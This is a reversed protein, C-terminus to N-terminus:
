GRAGTCTHSTSVPSATASSPSNWSEPCQGNEQDTAIALRTGDPSFELDPVQWSLTEFRRIEEGDLADVIVVSDGVPGRALMTGDPSYAVASLVDVGKLTLWESSGSLGLDMLRVTQESVSALLLGSGSTALDLIVDENGRLAYVGEAWGESLESVHVWGGDDSAAVYKGDSTVAIATVYSGSDAIPHETGAEWDWISVARGIEGGALALASRGPIFAVDAPDSIDSFLAQLLEGTELNWIRVADPSSAAVLAGDPSVDMGLLTSGPRIPADIEILQEGTTTDWARITGDWGRSVLVSEDPTFRVAQVGDLAWSTEGPTDHGRGVVTVLSTEPELLTPDAGLRHVYPSGVIEFVVHWPEDESGAGTVVVDDIQSLNELAAEIRDASAAVAIPATEEGGFELAFTGGNADTWITQQDNSTILEAGTSVSWIAVTGDTRGTAVLHGDASIGVGYETLDDALLDGAIPLTQIREGTATDVVSVPGTYEHTVLRDGAENLDVRGWGPVTLRVRSAVVAQHLAEQAEKLPGQGVDIRVAELALLIALEADEDLILKAKAALEQARAIAANTAAHEANTAAERANSRALTAQKQAEESAADARATEEIAEQEKSQAVETADEARQQSAYATVALVTALVAAAAFGTLVMRRRRRRGTRLAEAHTRSQTLYGREDTTLALDTEAAFVEYHDLRGPSLLYADDRDNENWEAVATALHRQLVLDDRLDDIWIRLREWTSLLAEHAVEITPARTNPDRDFTLLRHSGYAKLVSELTESDIGLTSIEVAAIRRRTDAAGEEIAVLRLLIHRIADKGADDARAYLDEARRGLAGLVGGARHYEDITLRSGTRRDFMETLAYEMLPLGGPQEVVDAVITDALGAELSVGVGEAPGIVAKVLSEDDPMTVSVLGARLLDGFGPHELPRDYFDARMTVIIRIRHLPDSALHTLMELFRRRVERDVTLTFLEEFQDLVVVLKDALPEPPPGGDPEPKFQDWDIDPRLRKGAGMAA